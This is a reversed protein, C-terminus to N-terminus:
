AAGIPSLSAHVLWIHSGIISRRHITNGESCWRYDTACHCFHLVDLETAVLLIDHLSPLPIPFTSCVRLLGIGKPCKPIAACLRMSGIQTLTWPSNQWHQPAQQADSWSPWANIKFATHVPAADTLQCYRSGILLSFLFNRTPLPPLGFSFTHSGSANNFLSCIQDERCFCLPPPM